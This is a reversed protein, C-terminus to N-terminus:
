TYIYIYINPDLRTPNRQRTVVRMNVGDGTPSPSVMMQNFGLLGVLISGFKHARFSPNSKTHTKSPPLLTQFNPETLNPISGISLGLQVGMLISLCKNLGEEYSLCVWDLPM